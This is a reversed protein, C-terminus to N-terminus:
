EITSTSAFPPAAPRDDLLQEVGAEEVAGREGAGALREGLLDRPEVRRRRVALHDVGDRLRELRRAAEAQQAAVERGVAARDELEGADLAADVSPM